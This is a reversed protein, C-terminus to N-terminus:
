RVRSEQYLLVRLNRPFLEVFGDLDLRELKEATDAPLQDFATGELFMVTEEQSFEAGEEIWPWVTRNEPCVRQCHLCGVLCNHWASDMWAPFPVDAPKENHFTICREAHLLFRDSAIAGAPCHQQCASCNRCRQLMQPGRWSDELAPLDSYVAV